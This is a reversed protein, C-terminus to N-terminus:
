QALFCGIWHAIEAHNLPTSLTSQADEVVQEGIRDIRFQMLANAYDVTFEPHGQIGLFHEGVSMISIPCHVNGGLIEGGEPLALVQDQHSLLLNYDQQIPQMWTKPSKIEVAKVGIGWGSEAKAVRGGLAHAIMQHGFCIGVLKKQNENLLRVFSALKHIWDIDEYVSHRSGTTIYGEHADVMAPLEGHCVDYVTLKLEPIYEAFFRIFVESYDPTIDLFQERVHDCQLLGINM